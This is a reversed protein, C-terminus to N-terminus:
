CRRDKGWWPYCGGMSGSVDLVVVVAPKVAKLIETVEANVDREVTKEVVVYPRAAMLALILALALKVVLTRLRRKRRAKAKVVKVM